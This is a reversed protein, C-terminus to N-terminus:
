GVVLRSFCWDLDFQTTGFMFLKLLDTTTASGLGFGGVSIEQSRNEGRRRAM